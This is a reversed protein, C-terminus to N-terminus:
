GPFLFSSGDPLEFGSSDSLLMQNEPLPLAEIQAVTKDSNYLQFNFFELNYDSGYGINIWGAGELFEGDYSDPTADWTYAGMGDIDKQGVQVGGAVSWHTIGRYRNNEVLAGSRTSWGSSDTALWNNAASDYLLVSSVHERTSVLGISGSTPTIGLCRFDLICVGATQNFYSAFPHRIGCTDRTVSAGATVIPPTSFAKKEVQVYTPTGGSLTFSVTGAVSLNFTVDTGASATGHGTGTAGVDASTVTGAGYVSLTYDGTGLATFDITQTAPAASNLFYNESDPYHVPTPVPFVAAGVAETVVGSAVTNGNATTYYAFGYLSNATDVKQYESPNQNAQDTVDEIHVWSVYISKEGYTYNTIGVSVNGGGTRGTFTSTYIGDESTGIITADGYNGSAANLTYFRFRNDGSINRLKMTVRYSRGAETSLTEYIRGFNTASFNLQNTGTVTAGAGTNKVSFDESNSTLNQVIRANKFPVVGTPVIANGTGPITRFIGDCDQLLLDDVRTDEWLGLNIKCTFDPQPLTVLVRSDGFGVLPQTLQQTLAKTLAQTHM